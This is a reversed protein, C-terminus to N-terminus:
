GVQTQLTLLSFISVSLVCGHECLMRWFVALGSPSGHSDRTYTCTCTVILNHLRYECSYIIPLIQVVYAPKLVVSSLMRSIVADVDYWRQGRDIM